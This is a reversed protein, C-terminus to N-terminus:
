ISIVFSVTAAHERHQGLVHVHRRVLGGREGPERRRAEPQVLGDVRPSGGFISFVPLVDSCFSPSNRKEAPVVVQRRDVPPREDAHPPLLPLDLLGEVLVRHVVVKVLPAGPDRLGHSDHTPSKCKNTKAPFMNTIQDKRRDLVHLGLPQDVHQGPGVPADPAVRLVADVAVPASQRSNRIPELVDYECVECALIM